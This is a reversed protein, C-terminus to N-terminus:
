KEEKAILDLLAAKAAILTPYVNNRYDVYSIDGDDGVRALKYERGEDNYTTTSEVWYRGAIIPTEVRSKFFRVTDPSFWYRGLAKNAKKVETINRYTANKKM